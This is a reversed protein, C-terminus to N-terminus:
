HLTQNASRVVVILCSLGLELDQCLVQKMERVFKGSFLGTNKQWQRLSVQYM